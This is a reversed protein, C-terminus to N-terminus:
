GVLVVRADLAVVRDPLVLLPNVEIEAIEPHSAALASLRAAFAAAGNFDLPPRNRAGRLLSAGRLSRVMAAAAEADVPGLAIAMDNLIEAYIGGFGVLLLPGFSPDHRCGVILEVGDARAAEEEVVIAPPALRVRLDAVAAALSADDCIGLVVGGADSKHRLGLAKVVVPYTLGTADPTETAPVLQAKVVPLGAEMLLTRASWYDDGAVPAAPPPLPLPGAPLSWWRVARALAQVAEEAGAFVPIERQRLADNPKAGHHMSHILLPRERRDRAEAMLAAAALERQGLEDSKVSYGGFFGTLLVADVEGSALLTDVVRGYSSFDQEGGGALDVPNTTSATAPLGAALAAATAPPLRPVTLGAATALDAALVGHGGGDAVIGLRPGRPRVRPLLVQIAAVAQRPSAAEVMGGARCAAGVIASGTALAGTHSRAARVAADSGGAAILVVPKGAAHARRAAAVLRRGDRIGELYLLIARTGAHDVLAELAEEADIDAQNGLSVLRSFGLGEHELLLGLEIGLNGSQSVLGVPGAETVSSALFLEAGADTVGMCNPGLLRAGAARVRAVIQAQRERGADGLEGFGATIAVLMRSGAALADEVAAEFSAEPVALVVLEPPAPLDGLSRYVRHGAVDGGRRNVLFVHRRHGGKLANLAIWNGWKAPDDSAGVVALSRPDFLAGLRGRDDADGGGHRPRRAGPDTTM